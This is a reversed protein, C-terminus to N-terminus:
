GPVQLYGLPGVRIAFALLLYGFMSLRVVAILGMRSKSLRNAKVALEVDNATLQSFRAALQEVLESRNM